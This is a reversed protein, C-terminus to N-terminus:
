NKLTQKKATEIYDFINNVKNKKINNKYEQNFFIIAEKKNYNLLKMNNFYIIIFEKLFGKNLLEKM